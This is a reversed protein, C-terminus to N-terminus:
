KELGSFIARRPSLPHPFDVKRLIREPIVPDVVPETLHYTLSSSIGSYLHYSHSEKQEGCNKKSTLNETKSIKCIYMSVFGNGSDKDTASRIPRIPNSCCSCLFIFSNLLPIYCRTRSISEIQM